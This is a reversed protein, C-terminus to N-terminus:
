TGPNQGLLSQITKEIQDDVKVNLAAMVKPDRLVQDMKAVTLQDTKEKMQGFKELVEQIHSARGSPFFSIVADRLADLMADPPTPLQKAFQVPSLNKTEIQERCLTSIVTVLLMPDGRLPGLPDNDLNVLNVHHETRIEEVSPADLEVRWEIGTKGKFSAM